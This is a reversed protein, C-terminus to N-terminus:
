SNTNLYIIKYFMGVIYVIMEIKNKNKKKM